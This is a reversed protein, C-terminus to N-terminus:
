GEPPYGGHRITKIRLDRQEYRHLAECRKQRRNAGGLAPILRRDGAPSRGSQLREIPDHEVSEAVVNNRAARQRDSLVAPKHESQKRSAMSFISLHGAFSRNVASYGLRVSV